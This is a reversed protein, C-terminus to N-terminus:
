ASAPKDVRLVAAAIIANSASDPKLGSIMEGVVYCALLRAYAAATPADHGIELFIAALFDTRRADIRAVHAATKADAVAWARMGREVPMARPAREVVLKLLHGLRAAPDGGVETVRAIFFNTSREAWKARMDSHLEALDRFHWYFSGKTVGLRAALPEVAVAAAGKEGLLTLAGAIWDERSLRERTTSRAMDTEM